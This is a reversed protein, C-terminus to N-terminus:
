ARKTSGERQKIVARFAFAMNGKNYNRDDKRMWVYKKTGKVGTKGREILALSQKAQQDHPYKVIHRKLDDVKNKERRREAKYALNQPHKAKSGKKAM